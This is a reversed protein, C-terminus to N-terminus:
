STSGCTAADVYTPAAAPSKDWYVRTGFNDPGQRAVAAGLNAANVSSETQSYYFRRPVYDV